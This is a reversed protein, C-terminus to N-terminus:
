PFIVPTKQEADMNLHLVASDKFPSIYSVIRFILDLSPISKQQWAGKEM